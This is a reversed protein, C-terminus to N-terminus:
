EDDTPKDKLQLKTIFVKEGANSIYYYKGDEDVYATEGGPGVKNKLKQDTIAAAADKAGEEIKDGVSQADKKVENKTEDAEQDIEDQAERSEERIEQDTERAEKRVKGREGKYSDKGAPQNTKLGFLDIDAKEGEANPETKYTFAVKKIDKDPHSLNISRSENGNAFHQQVDIDEMDGSEYFVQLREIHLPGESVKLKLATFEDAGLVSISENQMKFSATTHGIHHWGPENTGVVAPKQAFLKNYITVAIIMAIVLILKKM